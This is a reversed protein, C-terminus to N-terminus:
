EENKESEILDLKINLHVKFIYINYNYNFDNLLFKLDESKTM